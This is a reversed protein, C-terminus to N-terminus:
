AKNIFEDTPLQLEFAVLYKTTVEIIGTYDDNNILKEFLRWWCDMSGYSELIEQARGLNLGFQTSRFPHGKNALNAFRIMQHFCHTVHERNTQKSSGRHANSRLIDNIHNIESETFNLM